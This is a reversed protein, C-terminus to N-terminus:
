VVIPDDEDTVVGKGQVEVAYYCKRCLSYYRVSDCSLDILAAARAQLETLRRDDLHCEYVSKQVRHGYDLVLKALLGRRGDDAVDYSVLIMM